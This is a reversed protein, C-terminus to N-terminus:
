PQADIVGQPVPADSKLAAFLQDAVDRNWV